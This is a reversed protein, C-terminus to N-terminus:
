DPKERSLQHFLRNKMSKEFVKWERSTCICRSHFPRWYFFHLVCDEIQSCTFFLQLAAILLCSVFPPQFDRRELPGNENCSSHLHAAQCLRDTRLVAWTLAISCTSNSRMKLLKAISAQTRGEKKTNFVYKELDKWDDKRKNENQPASKRRRKGM